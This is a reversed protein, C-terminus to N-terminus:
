YKSFLLFNINFGSIFHDHYWRVNSLPEHSRVFIQLLQKCDRENALILIM